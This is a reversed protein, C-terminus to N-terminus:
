LTLALLSPLFGLASFELGVSRRALASLALLLPYFLALLALSPITQVLSALALVPWRVRPARIAAIALPVSIILGLALASASLIVHQSLYDPLLAWAARLQGSV